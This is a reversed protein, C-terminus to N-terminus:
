HLWDKLGAWAFGPRLGHRRFPAAPYRKLPLRFPLPRPDDSQGMMMQAIDRGSRTAATVGNGHYGFSAFVQDAGGLRGVFPTLRRTMCIFGAWYFPTQVSRWHPFIADFDKRMKQRNEAHAAPLASVGGRAGFLFRNDPLLRVYNLLHQDNYVTIKRHWGQDTIQADSLPETVLIASQVPMYAGRLTAPIDDSSYGNTAVLVRAARITGRPTTAEFVGDVSRLKTAPSQGFIKVDKNRTANLLGVTYKLPNLGFGPKELFGAHANPSAIGFNALDAKDFSEIGLDLEANAKAAFAMGSAVRSEKHAVLMVGEEARDADIHYRSLNDAVAAVASREWNILSRAATEGQTKVLKLPDIKTGGMCAFGGNRGSAGWGPDAADVIIVSGADNEALELAANLGTYGAGIILTDTKCDSQLSEFRPVDQVTSRWYTEPAKSTDYAAAEYIRKM